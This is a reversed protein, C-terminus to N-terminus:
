GVKGQGKGQRVWGQGAWGRRAKGPGTGQRVWGYWAGGQGATGLRM